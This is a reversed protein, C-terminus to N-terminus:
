GNEASFILSFIHAILLMSLKKEKEKKAKKAMFHFCFSILLM